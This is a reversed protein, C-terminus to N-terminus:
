PTMGKLGFVRYLAGFDAHATAQSIRYTTVSYPYKCGPSHRMVSGTPEVKGRNILWTVAARVAYDLRSREVNAHTTKTMADCIDRTTFESIGLDKIVLLASDTSVFVPERDATVVRRIIPTDSM